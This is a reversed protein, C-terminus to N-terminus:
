KGITVTFDSTFLHNDPNFQAFVRYTGPKIPGYIGIPLFSVDPGGNEDPKPQTLNAPHVHIYEYTKENIMVLHGFSGLYPKLDTIPKNTQADAIHFKLEQQGLSMKEASLPKTYDLSVIYLGEFTKTLAKTQATAPKPTIDAGVDLTFGFQQEIAGFPQFDIYLHYRGPAPFQTTVVFSNGEQEPHIHTFYDLENNVVIVHALKTYLPKYLLTPNGSSADFIQFSLQTDQNPIITEPHQFGVSFRKTRDGDLGPIKIQTNPSTTNTNADQQAQQALLIHQAHIGLSIPTNGTPLLLPILLSISLVSVVLFAIGFRPVISFKNQLYRDFRLAELVILLTLAVFFIQPILGSLDTFHTGLMLAHIVILLAALYVFRHLFKWKPYTLKVIIFEFSTGAMLTLIVLATFSFFIALLYKGSLFSLGDFGGLQGFFALSAHLVAFYFASVGIARRAKIYTGRAPFSLFLQTLPTCILALYLYFVALLAYIQTLRIIQLIGEPITFFIYLFVGVSILISSFLVYFRINSFLKNM